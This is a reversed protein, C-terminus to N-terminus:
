RSPAPKRQIQWPDYRRSRSTQDQRNYGMKERIGVTKEFNGFIKKGPAPGAGRMTGGDELVPPFHPHAAAGGVEGVPLLRSDNGGSDVAAPGGPLHPFVPVGLGCVAGSVAPHRGAVPAACAKPLRVVGGGGGGSGRGVGPPCIGRCPESSCGRGSAAPRGHSRM